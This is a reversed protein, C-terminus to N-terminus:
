TTPLVLDTDTGNWLAKDSTRLVGSMTDTIDKATLMSFQGQQRSVEMVFLLCRFEQSRGSPLGRRCMGTTM